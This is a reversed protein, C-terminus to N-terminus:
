PRPIWNEDLRVRRDPAVEVIRALGICHYGAREEGELLYRLRLRGVLLPAPQPSGFAHRVGRLRAARLARRQRQRRWGRDGRVPAGARGFLRRPQPRQGASRAAASTPRGPISFPTGDEFVGSASALAFRGTALLDRDIAMETVGWPYPRMAATRGRVLMELWRDQQQFHQARLFMGEQLRSSQDLDHRTPARRRSRQSPASTPALSRRGLCAISITSWPKASRAHM